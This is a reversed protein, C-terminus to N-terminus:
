SAEPPTLTITPADAEDGPGFAKALRTRIALVSVGANELINRVRYEEIDQVSLEHEVGPNASYPYPDWSFTLTSPSSAEILSRVARDAEDNLVRVDVWRAM